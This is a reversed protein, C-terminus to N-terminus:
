EFYFYIKRVSWFTGRASKLNLKMKVTSQVRARARGRLWFSIDILNLAYIAQQFCIRSNVIIANKAKRLPCLINENM